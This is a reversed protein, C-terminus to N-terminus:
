LSTTQGPYTTPSRVSAEWVWQPRFLARIDIGPVLVDLSLTSVKWKIEVPAIKKARKARLLWTFNFLDQLRYGSAQLRAPRFDLRGRPVRLAHCTCRSSRGKERPARSPSGAAM